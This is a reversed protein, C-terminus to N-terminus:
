VDKRNSPYIHLDVRERDESLALDLLELYEQKMMMREELSIGQRLQALHYRLGAVLAPLYIHKFDVIQYSKTVDQVRTTAWCNFKYNQKDPTPYFSVLMQDRKKEVLFQTPRSKTSKVPIRLWEEFTARQAPFEQLNSGTSVQIVGDLINIADGSLVYSNASGSVLAIQKQELRSLPAMGRNQIDIFLLNLARRALRQEKASSYEGGLGETAQEIIEDVPLDFNQTGSLTESM